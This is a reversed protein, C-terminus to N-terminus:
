EPKKLDIWSYALGTKEDFRDERSIVKKFDSYDPFFVDGALDSNVSTLYLKNTQSLGQFYIEGGGVLFIEKNKNASKMEEAWAKKIAEDLSNCVIADAVQFNTNRTLIFNARGPLVKGISEYTKRGMIISHGLTIKKFRKLDDSIHFLLKGGNGIAANKVNIAVVISINPKM